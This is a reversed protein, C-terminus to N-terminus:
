KRACCHCHLVAPICKRKHGTHTNEHIRLSSPRSFRKHCRACEHRREEEHRRRRPANIDAACMPAGPDSLPYSREATSADSSSDHDDPPAVAHSHQYDHTYRMELDLEGSSPPSREYGANLALSAIRFSGFSASSPSHEPPPRPDLPMPQYPPSAWQTMSASPSRTRRLPSTPSHPHPTPYPAVSITNRRGGSTAVSGHRAIPSTPSPYWQNYAPSGPPPHPPPISPIVLPPPPHPHACNQTV